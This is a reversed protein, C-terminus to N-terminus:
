KIEKLIELIEEHIGSYPIEKTQAIQLFKMAKEKEGEQYWYKGILYYPEYYDPNSQTWITEWDANSLLAEYKAVFQAKLSKYKQFDKFGESKFFPDAELQMSDIQPSIIGKYDAMERISQISYAQYTNEQFPYSSIYAIGQIPEFIVSHHALLQNIAMPNGMGLKQDQLGNQDRLYTLTNSVSLGTDQSMLEEMKEYRYMSESELIHTLNIESDKMAESQFHNTVILNNGEPYFISTSEPTKEIVAATQDLVSSITFSESVFVDFDSIIDYAEQITSAYQIVQRAIISVPTSSHSPLNSPLSNLTVTLGKENMGSVVGSFGGWTVSVFDYGESPNVFLIIKEKAFDDGVYFDFNRGLIMESQDPGFNWEAVATCAVLNMNQVMHGIDHAAHYNLIRNFKPGIFDYQDSFSQSVPYLEQLYEHPIDQYLNRNFWAIGLQLLPRLISSPILNKIEAVFADEQKQILEKHLIAIALGREYPTGEIYSEWNGSAGKRLWNNKYSYSDNSVIVRELEDPTQDSPLEPAPYVVTLYFFIPIFIVLSIVGFIILKKKQM